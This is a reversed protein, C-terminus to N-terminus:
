RQSTDEVRIVCPLSDIHSFAEMPVLTAGGDSYVVIVIPVGCNIDDKVDSIMDDANDYEITESVTGKTSLYEIRGVNM